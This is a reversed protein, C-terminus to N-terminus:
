SRTSWLERLWISWWRLWTRLTGDEQLRRASIEVELDLLAIRGRRALRRVLEADEAQLDERFGGVAEFDSRRVFIAQDGFVAGFRHWLLARWHASRHLPHKSRWRKNFAGAAVAPDELTAAVAALAGEPLRSDAHLFLLADGGARTAAANLQHGRGPKTAVWFTGDALSRTADTSGGDAVLIEHVAPQQVRVSELCGPLEQQEDVTPILVSIKM